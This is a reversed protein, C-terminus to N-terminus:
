PADPTSGFCARMWTVFTVGADSLQGFDRAVLWYAGYPIALDFVQVLRGAAVEEAVLVKDMLAVGQSRLAAQMVLGGDAYVPGRKSDPLAIGAASFWQHWGDRNEEHLLVHGLLDAPESPPLRTQRLAEAMVPAMHVDTLHQSQTRPWTSATLAYRIAIDASNTRFDVLQASSEVVIDIEPHALQFDPLHPILWCSAIAPEAHLTLTAVKDSSRIHELCLDVDDFSRTLVALLKAGALTLAVSRHGRDFLAQGLMAELDRIQRSIAAQSVYLEEAAMTFSNLRGAAEFSRLATLPLRGRKM